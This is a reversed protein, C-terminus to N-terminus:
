RSVTFESTPKEVKNNSLLHRRRAGEFRHVRFKQVYHCETPYFRAELSSWAQDCNESRYNSGDFERFRLLNKGVRRNDWWPSNNTAQKSWCQDLSKARGCAGNREIHRSTPEEIDYVSFRRISTPYVKTQLMGSYRHLWVWLAQLKCVPHV